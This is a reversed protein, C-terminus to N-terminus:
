GLSKLLLAFPWLSSDSHLRSHPWILRKNRRLTQQEARLKKLALERRSRDSRLALEQQGALEREQKEKNAMLIDHNKKKLINLQKAVYDPDDFRDLLEEDTMGFEDDPAVMNYGNLQLTPQDPTASSTGPTSVFLLCIMRTLRSSNVLERQPPQPLRTSFLKSSCLMRSSWVPISMLIWTVLSDLKLTLFM